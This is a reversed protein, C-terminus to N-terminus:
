AAVALDFADAIADALDSRPRPAPPATGAQAAEAAECYASVEPRPDYDERFSLWVDSPIHRPRLRDALPDGPDSGDLPALPNATQWVERDAHVAERLEDVVRALLRVATATSLPPGGYPLYDALAVFRGLRSDESMRSAARAYTDLIEFTRPRPPPPAPLPPAPM